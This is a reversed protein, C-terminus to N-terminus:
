PFETRRENQFPERRAAASAHWPKLYALATKQKETVNRLRESLIASPTPGPPAHWYMPFPTLPYIEEPSLSQQIFPLHWLSYPLLFIFRM